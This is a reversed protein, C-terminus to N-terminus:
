KDVGVVLPLGVTYTDPDTDIPPPEDVPPQNELSRRKAEVLTAEHDLVRRQTGDYMTRLRAKSTLISNIDAGTFDGYQLIQAATVAILMAPAFNSTDQYFNGATGDPMLATVRNPASIHEQGSSATVVGSVTYGGVVIDSVSASTITTDQGNNNGTIVVVGQAKLQNIKSTLQSDAFNPICIITKKREDVSMGSLEFLIKDVANRAMGSNLSSGNAISYSILDIKKEQGPRDGVLGSGGVGNDTNALSVQFANPTLGYPDRADSTIGLHTATRANQETMPNEPDDVASAGTGLFYIRVRPANTPIDPNWNPDMEVFANRQRAYIPDNTPEIGSSERVIGSEVESDGTVREVELNLPIEVVPASDVDEVVHSTNEGKASVDIGGVLALGVAGVTVGARLFQRRNRKVVGSKSTESEMIILICRVIKINFLIFSVKNEYVNIYKGVSYYKTSLEIYRRLFVCVEFM